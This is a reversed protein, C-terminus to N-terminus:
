TLTIIFPDSYSSVVYIKSGTDSMTVFYYNLNQSVCRESYVYTVWTVGYNTSYYLRGASVAAVMYSGNANTDCTSWNSSVTPLGRSNAIGSIQTFTTGTNTSLYLGGNQVAVLIYQGTSKSIASFWTLNTTAPLGSTNTTGGIATWSTGTNISLYLIRTTTNDNIIISGNNSCTPFATFSNSASTGLGRTGAIQTFSGGTNTSLYCGQSANVIIVEGYQSMVSGNWTVGTTTNNSPLGVSIGASTTKPGGLVVFTLGYNSSLYLNYYSIEALLMYQGTHSLCWTSWYPSLSTVDRANFHGRNAILNYSYGGDYSITLTVWHTNSAGVPALVINGDKSMKVTQSVRRPAGCFGLGAAPRSDVNWNTSCWMLGLGDYCFILGTGMNVYLQQNNNSIAMQGWQYTGSGSNPFSNVTTATNLITFSTGSNTSLYAAAGPIGTLIKTGDGSLGTICYTSSAATALGTTNGTGDLRAWNAGNNSSYYVGNQIVCM